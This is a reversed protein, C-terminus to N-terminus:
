WKIIFAYSGYAIYLLVAIVVIDIAIAAATTAVFICVVIEM